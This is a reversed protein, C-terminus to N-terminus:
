RGPLREHAADGERSLLELCRAADQTALPQDGVPEAAVRGAGNAAHHGAAIMRQQDRGQRRRETPEDHHALKALPQTQGTPSHMPQAAFLAHAARQEELADVLEFSNRSSPPSGTQVKSTSPNTM